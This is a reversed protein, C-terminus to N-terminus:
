EKAKGHEIRDLATRVAFQLYPEDGFKSQAILLSDICSEDGVESLLDLATACVNVHSDDEVVRRLWEVVRPHRLSELVNVAFIRVDPDEDKLLKEMQPAVQSPLTKLVEIAENRIHPNNSRLFTLLVSVAETNAIKGLATMLNERVSRDNEVEMAGALAHVAEPCNGLDKAAMRRLEPDPDRLSKILMPFDEPAPPVDVVTEASEIDHQRAKVLGM